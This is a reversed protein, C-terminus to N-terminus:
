GSCFGFILKLCLSFRPLFTEFLTFSRLKILFVKMRIFM